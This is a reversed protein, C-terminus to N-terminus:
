WVLIRFFDKNKRLHHPIVVELQEQLLVRHEVFRLRELELGTVTVSYSGQAEQM